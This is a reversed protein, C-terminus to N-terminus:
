IVRSPLTPVLKLLTSGQRINRSPLTPVLKLVTSGQRIDRSPLTPVLKLLTSGQRIDGSPLTPEESGDHHLVPLRFLVRDHFRGAQHM